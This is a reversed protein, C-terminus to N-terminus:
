REQRRSETLLVDAIEPLPVIRDIAGCRIAERPMKFVVSTTEDQAITRAGAKKMALIGQVGDSGMGTLIAATANRGAAIAVSHFLVDVAPRQFCVLPGDNVEVKYGGPISRLMMHRNGPAVLALGPELEEGGEAERVRLCM